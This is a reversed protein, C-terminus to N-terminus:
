HSLEIVQRMTDKSTVHMKAMAMVVGVAKQNFAHKQLMRM